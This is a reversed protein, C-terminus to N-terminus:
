WACATFNADCAGFPYREAYQVGEDISVDVALEARPPFGVPDAVRVFTWTQTTMATCGAWRIM